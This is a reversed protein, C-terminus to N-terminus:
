THDGVRIRQGLSDRNLQFTGHRLCGPCNIVRCLLRKKKCGGMWIVETMRSIELHIIKFFDDEKASKLKKMKLISIIIVYRNMTRKCFFSLTVPDIKNGLFLTFGNRKHLKISNQVVPLNNNGRGSLFYASSTYNWCSLKQIKQRLWKDLTGNIIYIHYFCWLLCAGSVFYWLPYLQLLFKKKKKKDRCQPKEHKPIFPM